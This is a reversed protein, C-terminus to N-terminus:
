KEILKRANEESNAEIKFLIYKGVRTELVDKM